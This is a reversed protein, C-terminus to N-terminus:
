VGAISDLIVRYGEMLPRAEKVSELLASMDAADLNPQKSLWLLLHGDALRLEYPRSAFKRLHDRLDAKTQVAGARLSLPWAAM